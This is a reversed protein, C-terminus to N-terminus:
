TVELVKRRQTKLIILDSQNNVDASKGSTFNCKECAHNEEEIQILSHKFPCLKNTCNDKFFCIESVEFPCTKDNNFFHCKKVNKNNHM